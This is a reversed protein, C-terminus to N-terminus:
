CQTGDPHQLQLLANLIPIFILLPINYSECSIHVFPCTLSGCTNEKLAPSSVVHKRYIYIKTYSQFMMLNRYYVKSHKNVEHM